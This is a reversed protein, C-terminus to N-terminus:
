HVMMMLVLVEDDENRRAMVFALMAQAVYAEVARRNSDLALRSILARYEQSEEITALVDSAPSHQIDDVLGGAIRKEFRLLAKDIIKAQKPLIGLRERERRTDDRTPVHIRFGGTPQTVVVPPVVGGTQFANNNFAAPLFAVPNGAM